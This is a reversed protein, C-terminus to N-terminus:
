CSGAGSPRLLGRSAKEMPCHVGCFGGNIERLVIQQEPRLIREKPEKNRQQTQDARTHANHNMICCQGQNLDKSGSTSEEGGFWSPQAIIIFPARGKV